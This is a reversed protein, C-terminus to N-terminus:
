SPSLRTAESRCTLRYWAPESGRVAEIRSVGVLERPKNHSSARGLSRSAGGCVALRPISGRGRGVRALRAAVRTQVGRWGLVLGTRHASRNDYHGQVGSAGCPEAGKQPICHLGTMEAAQSASGRSLACAGAILSASAGRSRHAQGQEQSCAGTLLTPSSQSDTMAALCQDYGTELM